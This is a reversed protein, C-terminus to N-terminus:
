FISINVFNIFFGLYRSWTHTMLFRKPYLWGDLQISSGLDVGSMVSGFLRPFRDHLFVNM